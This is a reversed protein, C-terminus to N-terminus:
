KSTVKSNANEIVGPNVLRRPRDAGEVIPLVAAIGEFLDTEVEDQGPMGVASKALVWDEFPYAKSLQADDLGFWWPEKPDVQTAHARLAGSRAWMHSAVPIRTTIREDHGPRNLWVEDYPSSNHQHLMAEHVALLRTRSWVAYYLKLPQWVPGAWPYWMPDGAREFAPVSIDHVKVHDPHPYGRQDDGYTIIVQPRERRIVTVLRGVAEDLDAQHFCEPHENAPSDLMGSDRYGLMVVEDFGIIRASEALEQPRLRALMAKEDDAHLGHFPGGEDRLAPNQLDGEEGGTCCVLVTRVRYDHYLALTPAGKSAEDDPHAHVTLICLDQSPSEGPARGNTASM